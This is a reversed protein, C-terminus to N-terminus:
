LLDDEDSDEDEDPASYPAAYTTSENKAHSVEQVTYRCVRIKSHGEGRPIAIVDRPNFTVTLVHGGGFSYAYDWTGVHLGQSCEADRDNDVEARSMVLTAGIPNPIHGDHEVGDVWVTNRGATISSNTEDNRVGKYGVVLGEATLTLGRDSIWEWLRRRVHKAPNTALNELFKVPASWTDDGTRVMQAIHDALPGEVPDGDFYIAGNLYSVRESLARM